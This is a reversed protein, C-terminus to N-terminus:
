EPLSRAIQASLDAVLAYRRRYQARKRSPIDEASRHTVLAGLEFFGDDSAIGGNELWATDYSAFVQSRSEFYRNGSVRERDSVALITRFGLALCFARFATVLLDRPRLGQMRHTLARYTDLADPSHLGQIAGVFAVRKGGAQGFTFALSFLHLEDQVLGIVLQGEHEFKGPAEVQIRLGEGLDALQIARSATARLFALHGRILAHHGAVVALKRQAPWASHLYPHVVCTVISPRLALAEQLSPNSTDGMWGRFTGLHLACRVWHTLVRRFAIPPTGERAYSAAFFLEGLM